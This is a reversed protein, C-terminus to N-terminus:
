MLDGTNFYDVLIFNPRSGHQTTCLNAQAGISGTGTAANTEPASGKDPVLIGTNLVNIDLFHNVIYMLGSGTSGSPRDISCDPFSATTVDQHHFDANYRLYFFLAWSSRKELGLTKLPPEFYNQSM